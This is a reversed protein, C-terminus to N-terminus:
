SRPLVSTREPDYFSARATSRQACPTSLVSALVAPPATLKRQARDSVGHIIATVTRKAPARNRGAMRVVALENFDCPAWFM